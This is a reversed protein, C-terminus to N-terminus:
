LLRRFDVQDNNEKGLKELFLLMKKAFILKVTELLNMLFVFCNISRFFLKIQNPVNSDSFVKLFFFSFKGIRFEDCVYLQM